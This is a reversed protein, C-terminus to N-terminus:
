VFIKVFCSKVKNITSYIFWSNEVTVNNISGLLYLFADNMRTNMIKKFINGFTLTFVILRCFANSSSTEVKFLESWFVMDILLTM